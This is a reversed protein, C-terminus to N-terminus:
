HFRQRNMQSHLLFPEQRDPIAWRGPVPQRSPGRSCTVQCSHGGELPGGPPQLLSPACVQTTLKPTGEVSMRQAALPEAGAKPHSGGCPGCSHEHREQTLPAAPSQPDCRAAICLLVLLEASGSPSLWCGVLLPCTPPPAMLLSPAPKPFTSVVHHVAQGFHEPVSM